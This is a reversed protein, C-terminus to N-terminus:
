LGYHGAKGGRGRRDDRRRFDLLEPPAEAHRSHALLLAIATDGHRPKRSQKDRTHLDPLHPVGHKNVRFLMLDDRVGDDRPVLIQHEEFARRFRPLFEAYWSEKLQLATYLAEGYTTVAKEGLWGGNGGSDVVGGGFRPIGQTIAQLIEWQEDYPVGRLEVWFPCRKTLNEQEVLLAMVSLDGGASRAFDVGVTTLRDGSLLRLLPRINDEIWRAIYSEREAKTLRLHHDHPLELRVSPVLEMCAEILDRRIYVGGGGSPIVRYEEDSGWTKLKEALWVAELEPSWPEGRRECQRRFLGETLADELTVRHLSGLRERTRLQECLENFPNGAGNHTSIVSLDGGWDGVAAAAKLLEPLNPHHAAEDICVSGGRGRFAAPNSTVAFVSHGSAFRIEHSLIDRNGDRLVRTGYHTTAMNLARAWDACMSIYARGLLHSTSVYYGDSGGASRARAATMVQRAGESWTLGVRRAKEGVRLRARDSFWRVQYPLFLGERKQMVVPEAVPPPDNCPETM